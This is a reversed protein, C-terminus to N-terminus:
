YPFYPTYAVGTALSMMIFIMVTVLPGLWVRGTLLFFSRNFYPLIFMMPIIIQLMNIYLWETTWFITGTVAFTVYQIVMIAILGLTNGLACLLRNRWEVRGSFRMSCNVRVSNSFYFIFFLPIYMLWILLWRLNVPRAALLLFRFDVHFLLYSLYVLGYFGAFVAAALLLTKGLNNRSIKLGWMDPNIGSRKGAFRYHLYFILLGLSGNLMAWLLVANIMRGPFWWTMDSNTAAPFFFGTARACPVYAVCAVTASFAFTGWFVARSKGTKPAPIDQPVPQAISAFFPTKLLLGAFPVIFLFGGILALLNFLEKFFWIQSSSPIVNEMGFSIIFFDIITAVAQPIYPQIPHITNENYVVRLTGTERDGYYRGIEVEAIQENEEFISNVVRLAEPANRMDANGNENRFGGEDYRAYGMGLNTHVNRLVGETFTLVYGSVFVAKLRNAKDAAEREAASIEEGEGSNEEKAAELLDAYQRGFYAAARLAGNGGASHGTAGVRSKDVYNFVDSDCVYKVVPIIGYGERTATSQAFTVSSDGQWYPDITLAVIGRRALEMSNSIQTERTRQFGPCVVVLPAPNDETASKPKFLDAQIWQGNEAPIKLGVVDVTGGVSQLLAAGINGVLVLGLAIGLKCGLAGAKMNERESQM